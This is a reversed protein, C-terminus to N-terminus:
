CTEPKPPRNFLIALHGLSIIHKGLPMYINWAYELYRENGTQPTWLNQGSYPDFALFSARRGAGVCDPRGDLNIDINGCNIVFIENYTSINWIIAGTCGDIALVAGSFTPKPPIRLQDSRLKLLM